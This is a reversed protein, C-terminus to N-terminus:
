LNLLGNYSTHELFSMTVEYFFPNGVFSPVDM